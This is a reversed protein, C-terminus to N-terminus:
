TSLLNPAGNDEAYCYLIYKEYTQLDDKVVVEGAFPTFLFAEDPRLLYYTVNASLRIFQAIYSISLSCLM